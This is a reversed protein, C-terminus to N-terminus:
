ILFTIDQHMQLTLQLISIIFIMVTAAKLEEFGVLLILHIMVTMAMYTGVVM